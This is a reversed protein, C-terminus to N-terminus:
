SSQFKDLVLMVKKAAVETKDQVDEPMLEPQDAQPETHEVEDKPDVYDQIATSNCSCYLNENCPNQDPVTCNM